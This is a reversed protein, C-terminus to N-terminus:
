SVRVQQMRYYRAWKWPDRHIAAYDDYVKEEDIDAREQRLYMTLAAIIGIAYFALVVVIYLLAHRDGGGSTAMAADVAAIAVTVNATVEVSSEEVAKEVGIVAAAAMGTGRAMASDNLGLSVNTSILTPDQWSATVASSM